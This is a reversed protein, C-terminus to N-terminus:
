QRLTAKDGTTFMKWNTKEKFLDSSDNVKKIEM